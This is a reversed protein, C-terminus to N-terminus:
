RGVATKPQQKCWELLARETLEKLSIGLQAAVIKATRHVEPGLRVVNTTSASSM